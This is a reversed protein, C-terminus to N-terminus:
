QVWLRVVWQLLMAGLFVLIIHDRQPQTLLPRCGKGTALVVAHRGFLYLLWAAIVIGLPHLDISTRVQGHVLAAFSRTLGCGPCEVGLFGQVACLPIREVGPLLPYLYAFLFLAPVGLLVGWGEIARLSRVM